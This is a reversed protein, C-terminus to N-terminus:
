ISIYNKYLTAWSTQKLLHRDQSIMTQVIHRKQSRWQKEPRPTHRQGPEIAHTARRSPRRRTGVQREACGWIVSSCLEGARVGVLRVGSPGPEGVGRRAVAQSAGVDGGHARAQRLPAVRHQHREAVEGLARAPRRKAIRERQEQRQCREPQRDRERDSSPSMLGLLAPVCTGILVTWISALCCSIALASSSSWSLRTSSVVRGAGGGAFGGRRTVRTDSRRRFAALAGGRRPTSNAPWRSRRPTAGGSGPAQQPGGIRGRARLGLLKQAFELGAARGDRDILLGALARLRDDDLEQDRDQQEHAQERQEHADAGLACGAPDRRERLEGALAPALALADASM